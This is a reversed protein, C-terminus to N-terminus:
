PMYIASAHNSGPPAQTERPRNRVAADRAPHEVPSRSRANTSRQTARAQLEGGLDVLRIGLAHEDAPATAEERDADADLARLVYASIKKNVTALDAILVLEDRWSGTSVGVVTREQIMPAPTMTILM